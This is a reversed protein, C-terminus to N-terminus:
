RVWRFEDNEPFPRPSDVMSECKLEVDSLNFPILSGFEKEFLVFSVLIKKKSRYTDMGLYHFIEVIDLNLDINTEEYTERIAAELFSEGDELKGKPISFFNPAHHTPHCILLKDDKNIIYLGCTKIKGM